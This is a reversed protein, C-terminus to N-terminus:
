KIVTNNNNNNNYYGFYYKTISDGVLLSSLYEQIAKNMWEVCSPFKPPKRHLHNNITEDSWELIPKIFVMPASNKQYIHDLNQIELM